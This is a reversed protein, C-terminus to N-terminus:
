GFITREATSKMEGMPTAIDRTDGMYVKLRLMFAAWKYSVSAFVDDDRLWGGLRFDILTNEEFPTLTWTIFQDAGEIPWMPQIVKWQVLKEVELHTIELKLARSPTQGQGYLVEIMSGVEPKAIVPAGLWVELDTPQTLAQYLRNPQNHVIMAHHIDM